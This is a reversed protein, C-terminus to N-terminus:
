DHLDFPEISDEEIDLEDDNIDTIDNLEEDLDEESIESELGQKKRVAELRIKAALKAEESMKRKKRLKFLYELKVLNEEKFYILREEDTDIVELLLDSYDYIINGTEKEVKKIKIRKPNYFALIDNNYRYIKGKTRCALFNDDRNYIEGHVNREYKFVYIDRYKFM